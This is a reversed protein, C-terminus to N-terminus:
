SKTLRKELAASYTRATNCGYRSDFSMLCALTVDPSGYHNAIVATKLLQDDTFSAPDFVDRIFMANGWLHQTPVNIADCLMATRLARSSMGLFKHFNLGEGTLFACVDGFLPQNRYLPVFEVESVVALTNKLTAIGGQFVDLEAGQIDIKIFDVTGISNERVFQDLGMTKIKSTNKLQSVEMNQYRALLDADPEYLSACMPHVTRYFTREEEARGLAVPYFQLSGDADRNLGDCVEPDVEFGVVKSGPFGRVLAHAKEEQGAIPVAGVDLVTLTLNPSVQKIIKALM